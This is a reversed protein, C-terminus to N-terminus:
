FVLDVDGEFFRHQIGVFHGFFPSSINNFVDRPNKRDTINFISLGGRLKHQKVWPIFPVRFDKTLKVDISFFAPFRQGNPKGVYDQLVDVNSYPFGTHLDLVPSATVEWPIRFTGWGILRNPADFPSAAFVDPVIVPQEFPVFIQALSNLNGETRSHVYSLNLESRERPRFRLTSEFEYYRNEGSNM